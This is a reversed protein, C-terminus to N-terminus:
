SRTCVSGAVYRIEPFPFTDKLLSTFVHHSVHQFFAPDADTTPSGCGAVSLFINWFNKYAKSARFKHYKRVMTERRAVTHVGQDLCKGMHRLLQRQFYGAERKNWEKVKKAVEVVAEM